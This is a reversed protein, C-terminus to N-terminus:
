SPSLYIYSCLTDGGGAGSAGGAAAASLIDAFPHLLSLMHAHALFRQM